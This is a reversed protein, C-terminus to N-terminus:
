PNAETWVDVSWAKANGATNQKRVASVTVAQTVDGDSASAVVTRSDGSGSVTVTCNLPGVTVAGGAYLEDKKLRHLAEDVCADVAQRAAHARDIQGAIILQTQGIFAAAVGLALILAGILIVTVLGIFGRAPPTRRSAKNHDAAFSTM